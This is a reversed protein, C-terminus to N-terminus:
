RAAALWLNDIKCLKYIECGLKGSATDLGSTSESSLWLAFDFKAQLLEAIGTPGFEIHIQKYGFELLHNVASVYNTAQENGLWLVQQEPKIVLGSTDLPSRSFVALDAAKPMRYNEVRFTKGSTVVVEARRRLSILWRLDTEGGLNKSGGQQDQFDGSESVVLSGTVRQGASLGRFFDEAVEAHGIADTLQL